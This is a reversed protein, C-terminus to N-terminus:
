SAAPAAVKDTEWDWAPMEDIVADNSTVSPAAGPDNGDFNVEVQALTAMGQLVETSMGELQEKSFSCRANAVLGAVLRTKRTKTAEVNATLTAKVDDPLLNFFQESTLKAPAANVVPPTVPEPKDDPEPKTEPAAYDMLSQLREDSQNGLFEKDAEVFLKREILTNIVKDRNMRNEKENVVPKYILEPRVEVPEVESLTVKGGEDVTYGIQLFSTKGGDTELGVVASKELMAELFVWDAQPSFRNRLAQSLENRQTDLNKDRNFAKAALRELMTPRRKKDQNVRPFGAGDQISCAGKGDPLLALHDPRINIALAQYEEGNWTGPSKILEVFLGTSVEIVEGAELLELVRQGNTLAKAKEIDVWVEGKLKKSAEDWNVNFLRGVGYEEIVKPDGVSIQNGHVDIPHYVPVTEGNWADPFKALEEASYMLENHVGECILVVPAVLHPRGEFVEQRVLASMNSVLQFKPM